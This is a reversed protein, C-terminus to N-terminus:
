HISFSTSLVFFVTTSGFGLGFELAHTIGEGGIARRLFSAAPGPIIFVSALQVGLTTKLIFFIRASRVSEFLNAALNIILTSAQLALFSITLSSLFSATFFSSTLKPVLLVLLASLTFVFVSTSRLSLRGDLRELVIDKPKLIFRLVPSNSGFIIGSTALLLHFGSESSLFNTSRVCLCSHARRRFTFSISALRFIRIERCLTTFEFLELLKSDAKLIAFFRTSLLVRLFDSAQISLFRTFNGISVDAMTRLEFLDLHNFLTFLTFDSFLIFTALADFRFSLSGGFGFASLSFSLFSASSLIIFSSTNRSFLFVLSSSLLFIASNRLLALLFLKSSSFLRLLFFFRTALSLLFLRVDDEVRLFNEATRGFIRAVDIVHDVSLLQLNLLLTLALFLLLASHLRSLIQSVRGFSLSSSTFLFFTSSALSIGRSCLSRSLFHRTDLSFVTTTLLSINSQTLKLLCLLAQSLFGIVLATLLICFRTHTLISEFSGDKGFLIALRPCLFFKTTALFFFNARSSALILSTLIPLSFGLTTFVLLLLAAAGFICSRLSSFVGHANSSFRLSLLDSFLISASKGFFLADRLEDGFFISAPGVLERSAFGELRIHDRSLSSFIIKSRLFLASSFIMDVFHVSLTLFNIIKHSVHFSATTFSFSGGLRRKFSFRLSNSLEAARSFSSKRFIFTETRFIGRESHTFIGLELLHTFVELLHNTIFSNSARFLVSTSLSDVLLNGILLHDVFVNDRLFISSSSSEALFERINQLIESFLKLGFFLEQLRLLLHSALLCSFHKGGLFSFFLLTTIVKIASHRCLLFFDFLKRTFDLFKVISFLFATRAESAHHFFPLALFISTTKRRSFRSGNISECLIEVCRNRFHLSLEGREDSLEFVKFLRSGLAVIVELTATGFRLHGNLSSDGLLLLAHMGFILFMCGNTSFGISGDLSFSSEAFFLVSTSLHSLHSDLLEFSFKSGDDCFNISATESPVSFSEVPVVSFSRKTRILILTAEKRVRFLTLSEKHFM